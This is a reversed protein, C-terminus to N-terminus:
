CNSALYFYAVTQVTHYKVTDSSKLPILDIFYALLCMAQSMAPTCRLMKAGYICNKMVQTEHHKILIVQSTSVM